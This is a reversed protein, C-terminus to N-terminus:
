PTDPTSGFLPPLNPISVVRWYPERFFLFRPRSEKRMIMAIPGTGWIDEGSGVDFVSLRSFVLREEPKGMPSPMIRPQTVHADFDTGRGDRLSRVVQLYLRRKNWLGAHFDDSIVEMIQRASRNRAGDEADRLSQTILIEPSSEPPQRLLLALGIVILLLAGVLGVKSATRM